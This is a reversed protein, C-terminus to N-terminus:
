QKNLIKDKDIIVSHKGNLIETIFRDRVSLRYYFEDYSLVSYNIERGENKEVIKIFAKVKLPSMEGVLIIDVPTTSGKVLIGSFIALRLGIISALMSSYEDSVNEDAASIVRSETKNDSFIAKLPAYYEYRQNIQYYLKNDASDSTIIGVEIMNSLERRVSNIQEGIKRTIERVYFPQGPNNLFLHLLKVRTKSGFLADIM